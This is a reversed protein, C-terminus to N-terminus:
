YEYGHLAIHGYGVAGAVQTASLGLMSVGLGTGAPFEAGDEIPLAVTQAVGAVAAPGGVIWSVVGASGLAVVGATNARLTFKATGAATVAVYTMTVLTLRLVKGATVVAPTNTAAVTAGNRYAILPQLADTATTIAPINMYFSVTSRGTTNTRVLMDGTTTIRAFNAVAADDGIVVRQREVVNAGITLASTDIKSGTGDTVSVFDNAM